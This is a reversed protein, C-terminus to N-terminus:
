PTPPQSPPADSVIDDLKQASGQLATLADTVETPADANAIQDSLAKLKDQIETNAKALQDNLNKLAAALESEKMLIREIDAKTAPTLKNLWSPKM